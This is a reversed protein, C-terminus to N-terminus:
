YRTLLVVRGYNHLSDNEGFLIKGKKSKVITILEHVADNINNHPLSPPNLFLQRGNKLSYGMTHYDKEVLLKYANGDVAARWCAEIGFVARHNGLLENAKAIEKEFASQYHQYILPWVLSAIQTQNLNSYSGEITSTLGPIKRAVDRYWSVIKPPALLVLPQDGMIYKHISHDVQRLFAKLRHEQIVGSDKEFNKVHAYGAYSTSRSPHEYIYEDHYAEPINKDLIQEVHDAHGQWFKVDKETVLLVNYASSLQTKYWLDRLDFRDSVLVKGTVHFPFRIIKKIGTSVYLGLGDYNHLLDAEEALQKLNASLSRAILEVDYKYRLQDIAQDVARKLTLRDARRDPSLRHTPIIVTVCVNGSANELQLIEEGPLQENTLKM